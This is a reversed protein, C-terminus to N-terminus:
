PAAAPRSGTLQRRTARSSAVIQRGQERILETREITSALRILTDALQTLTGSTELRSQSALLRARRVQSTLETTATQQASEDGAPYDLPLRLMDLVRRIALPCYRVAIPRGDPPNQILADLAHAGHADIFTLDALNILVPGPIGRMAAAARAALADGVTMDLEGAIRLVCTGNSRAARIEVQDAIM